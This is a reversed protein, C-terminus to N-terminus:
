YHLLFYFIIVLRNVMKVPVPIELALKEALIEVSGIEKGYAYCVNKLEIM